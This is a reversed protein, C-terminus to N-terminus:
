VAEEHRHWHSSEVHSSEVAEGDVLDQWHFSTEALTVSDIWASGEPKVVAVEPQVVAVEPKVIAVDPGYEQPTTRVEQPGPEDFVGDEAYLDVQLLLEDMKVTAPHSM